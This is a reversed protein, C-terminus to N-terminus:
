SGQQYWCSGRQDRFLTIQRGDERSIRYYTRSMPTPMWWLDFSWLDDIRSVQQWRRGLRVAVPELESGEQVAVSTPLSLPKMADRGSPDIPVQVAQMEPAPHWPAVDVVKYLAHNGNMRAQLQREAELLRLHRDKQTDRFLGMQVGSAGSSLNSLSLAMEEVPAQPHDSEMRGRIIRSAREWDGVAEKFNIPKEWSPARDLICSLVARGAYRGRMQPRSYARKLLTDVAALLLGMSTSSFPLSTSEIISEEYKLPILPSDDIGRSLSWARMGAPGLQDVLSDARMSAVDGMTHLGFRHLRDKVQSALPLLDISHPALFAAADSPVRTAGQTRGARAAVFAPFKDEGLGVRPHLYEPVSHLLASALRADGGYMSELGDLRVYATGLEAREVRDSIGQLSTLMRHFVRQYSPEDAELVVTGPHHSVAQELTMGASVGATAPFTDVVLPRGKSRDVIVAPRDALHPQKRLEVKARLHTVLVCAVRM